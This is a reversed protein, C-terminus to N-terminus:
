SPGVSGLVDRLDNIQENLKDCLNRAYADGTGQVLTELNFVTSRLTTLAQEIKSDQM